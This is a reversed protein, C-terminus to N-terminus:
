PLVEYDLFLGLELSLLPIATAGRDWVAAGYFWSGVLEAAVGVGGTFLYTAGAGIEAGANLDPELVIPVGARARLSWAEDLRLGTAYSLSLVEQAVGELAISLSIVGGHQLADPPGFLMGAGLDLYTATLSLSEADDGLVESLRFPNNFRLGRGVMLESFGHVYTGDLPRPTKAEGEAFDFRRLNQDARAVQPAALGFGFLAAAILRRV